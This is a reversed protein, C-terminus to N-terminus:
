APQPLALAATDREQEIMSQVHPVMIRAVEQM